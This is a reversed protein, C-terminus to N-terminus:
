ILKWWHLQRRSVIQLM